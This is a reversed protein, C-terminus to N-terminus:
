PARQAPTPYPASGSTGALERAVQKRLVELSGAERRVAHEEAYRLREVADLSHQDSENSRCLARVAEFRGWEPELAGRFRDLAVAVDSEGEAAGRARVVAAHMSVLGAHCDPYPPASAGEAPRAYFVQQIIQGTSGFVFAALGGFLLVLAIRKGARASM